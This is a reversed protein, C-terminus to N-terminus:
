KIHTLAEHVLFTMSEDDMAFTSKAPANHKGSTQCNVLTVDTTCCSKAKKADHPRAGDCRWLL